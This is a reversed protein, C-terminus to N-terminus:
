LAFAKIICDALALASCIMALDRPPATITALPSATPAQVVVDCTAVECAKGSCSGGTAPEVTCVAANGGIPGSPCIIRGAVLHQHL